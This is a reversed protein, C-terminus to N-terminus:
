KQRFSPVRQFAGRHRKLMLRKVNLGANTRKECLVRFAEEDALTVGAFYGEAYDYGIEKLLQWYEPPCSVGLKM